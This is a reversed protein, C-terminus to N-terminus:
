ISVTYPLTTGKRGAWKGCLRHEVNKLARVDGNPVYLWKQDDKSSDCTNLVINTGWSASPLSLCLSQDETPVLQKTAGVYIFSQNIKRDCSVMKVVAGVSYSGHPVTM